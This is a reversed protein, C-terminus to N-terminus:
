LLYRIENLCTLLLLAPGSDHPMVLRRMILGVILLHAPYFAYFAYKMVVRGPKSRPYAGREGNCLMIPLAAAIAFLEMLDWSTIEPAVFGQLMAAVLATLVRSAGFLLCTVTQYLKSDGALYLLVILAVGLGGYDTELWEALLACLLTPLLALARVLRSRSQAMADYMILAILGLALTYYVNETGFSLRGSFCYNFPLESILAFACLRLLYRRRDHTKRFGFALLYCYIPFALRGVARLVNGLGSSYYIGFYGIHDCLMSICALLKLALTSM